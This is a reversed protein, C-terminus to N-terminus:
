RIEVQRKTVAMLRDFAAQDRGQLLSNLDQDGNHESNIYKSSMYEHAFLRRHPENELLRQALEFNETNVQVPKCDVIHTICHEDGLTTSSICFEVFTAKEVSLFGDSLIDFFDAWAIDGGASTSEDPCVAGSFCDTLKIRRLTQSHSSIFTALGEAILCRELDLTQLLPMHNANLALCDYNNRGVACYDATFRFDTVSTLNRFLIDVHEILAVEISPVYPSAYPSTRTCWWCATNNYIRPSLNFTKVGGLFKAWAKTTCWSVGVPLVEQLVLTTFSGQDNCAVADYTKAMLARWGRRNKETYRLGAGNHFLEDDATCFDWDEM